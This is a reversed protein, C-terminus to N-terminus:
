ESSVYIASIRDSRAEEIENQRAEQSLRYLVGNKDQIRERIVSLRMGGPRDYLVITGVPINGRDEICKSLTVTQGNTFIPAMADGSVRIPYQCLIKAPGMDGLREVVSPPGFRWVLVLAAIALALLTLIKKAIKMAGIMDRRSNANM